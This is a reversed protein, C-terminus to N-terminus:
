PNWGNFGGCAYLSTQALAEGVAWVVILATLLFKSKM